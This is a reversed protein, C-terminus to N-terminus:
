FFYPGQNRRGHQPAEVEAESQAKEFATNHKAIKEHDCALGEGIEHLPQPPMKAIDADVDAYKLLKGLEKHTQGLDYSSLESKIVDMKQALDAPNERIVKPEEASPGALDPNNLNPTAESDKGKAALLVQEHKAELERAFKEVGDFSTIQFCTTEFCATSGGQLEALEKHAEPNEKLEKNFEDHCENVRKMASDIFAKQEEPKMSRWMETFAAAQEPTHDKTFASIDGTKIAHNFVAGMEGYSATLAKEYSEVVMAVTEGERLVLNQQVREDQLTKRFADTNKQISESMGELVAAMLPSVSNASREREIRADAESQKRAEAQKELEEEFKEKERADVIGDGNLDARLDFVKNQKIEEGRTAADPAHGTNTVRSVKSVMDTHSIPQTITHAAIDLSIATKHAASAEFFGSAENMRQLLLKDIEHKQM